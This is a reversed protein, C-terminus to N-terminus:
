RSGTGCLYRSYVTRRGSGTDYLQHGPLHPPAAAVGPIASGKSQRHAAGPRVAHHHDAASRRASITHRYPWYCLSSEGAAAGARLHSCSPPPMRRIIVQGYGAVIDNVQNKRILSQLMAVDILGTRKEKGGGIQGIMTPDVELFSALQARWQELLPRRHVLVLTNRRRAAIMYIGVVTKGSGSPAVFIGDDYRALETVATEQTSTLQGHFGVDIEMGQFREDVLDLKIGASELLEQLEGLCGRPIALHRPFDEACCIVRPTLATSLRLNQKKYFEPNQFAALRKIRNLLPSPLEQKDVYILNGAVISVKAPFPGAPLSEWLRRSPPMAWPREEEDTSSTRVGIIQGTRAAERVVEDLRPLGMRTISSLFAWQDEHPRLTEDLFLTNDKEAPGKQLPLAILNGFGGKPLTDQNPFLRDYSDMGLQHRRTMTETLLYCGLKRAASAPVAESFFIWVHAGNGSRSREIFAPIDMQRCTELFAVVDEMWSQKDFDAALFHCTEDPLLPYTGITHRGELHDQVVEDTVPTYDQNPCNGCKVRPKDCYAPNWEHRCVPSYGVRQSKRSWWLRAFVDERGRFLSRFLGVKELLLSENNIAVSSSGMSSLPLSVKGPAQSGISYDHRLRRNEALLEDREATVKELQRRLRELEKGDDATIGMGRHSGKGRRQPYPTDGEQGDIEVYTRFLM